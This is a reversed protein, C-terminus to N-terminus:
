WTRYLLFIGKKQILDCNRCEQETSITISNPPPRMGYPLHVFETTSRGELTAYWFAHIYAPGWYNDVLFIPRLPQAVAADYQLKYEADFASGRKPGDIYFKRHFYAAQVGTLLLLAACVASRWRHSPIPKDSSRFGELLWALAPVTLMLIFVPYAIMRLTHAHDNTLAGPVISALLGYIVFRWWQDGRHRMCIVVIGLVAFIFTALFYSGFAGPMHHRPNIDGDKLLSLPNLDQLFRVAFNTITTGIPSNPKIYSILYFRTTLDPHQSSFVILPILTLGYLVWTKLVSFLRPKSNIFLVLGLAFLGALLRGITYSYTLLTLTSVLAAINGWSWRDRKQALYVAWLFLVVSLPYGFTELVLRSVEFFWPTVLATAGVIVGIARSASVRAALWGLLLCAVYVFAAAVLRALLIGPGFLWFFIALIYIQTPNSYQTYGGTYLRFYLPLQPGFEGGGTTSVLYANYALGSEDVYFGPPNESIGITYIWFLLTLLVIGCVIKVVTAGSLNM